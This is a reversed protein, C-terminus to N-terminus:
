NIKSIRFWNLNWGGANAKIGFRHAGANLKVKHRITTWNQWGGTAGINVVGYVPSGGAEELALSGGGALSAVRYEVLYDGSSALNVSPYSMWDGADIYGVNLGGGVDASAQTQVGSAQLFSEAEITTAGPVSSNSEIKIWNLNFGGSKALIALNQKGANLQVNHSITSWTQWGSTNPVGLNGFVPAGGGQELQIQGSASTSAVRYSVKYSGASPLEVSYTM